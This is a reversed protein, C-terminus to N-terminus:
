EGTFFRLVSIVPSLYVNQNIDNKETKENVEIYVLQSEDPYVMGLQFKAKDMLDESNKITDMESLLARKTKDMEKMSKEQQALANDLHGIDSRLSYTAGGICLLAVAIAFFYIGMGSSNRGRNSRYTTKKKFKNM